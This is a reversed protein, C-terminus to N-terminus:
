FNDSAGEFNVYWKPHSDIKPIKNDFAKNNRTQIGKFMVVGQRLTQECNLQNHYIRNGYCIGQLYLANGNKVSVNNNVIEGRLCDTLKIGIGDTIIINNNINYDNTCSIDMGRIKTKDPVSGKLSIINREIIWNSKLPQGRSLSEARSPGSGLIGTFGYGITHIYNGKILLGVTGANEIGYYVNKSISMHMDRIENNSIEGNLAYGSVSICSPAPGTQITGVDYFLNHAIVYNKYRLCVPEYLHNQLEIGMRGIHAFVNDVISLHNIMSWAGESIVKIGNAQTNQNTFRCKEIVINDMTDRAGYNAILVLGETDNLTSKKTSSFKIGSLVVNKLTGSLEIIKNQSSTFVTGVDGIMQFNAVDHIQINNDIHYVGDHCHLVVNSAILFQILSPNHSFSASTIDIYKIKKHAPDKDTLQGNFNGKTSKKLSEVKPKNLYSFRLELSFRSKTLIPGKMEDKINKGAVIGVYIIFVCACYIKSPVM